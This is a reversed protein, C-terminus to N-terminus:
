PSLCSQRLVIVAIKVCEKKRLGQDDPQMFKWLYEGFVVLVLSMDVSGGYWLEQTPTFSLCKSQLYCAMCYQKPYKFPNDLEGVFLVLYVFLFTMVVTFAMTTGSETEKSLMTTTILILGILVTTYM